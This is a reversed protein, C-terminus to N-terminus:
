VVILGTYRLIIGRLDIGTDEGRLNLGVGDVESDVGVFAGDGFRERQTLHPLYQYLYEDGHHHQACGITICLEDDIFQHSVSALPSCVSKRSSEPFPM